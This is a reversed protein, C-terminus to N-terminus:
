AATRDHNLDIKRRAFLTKAATQHIPAGTFTPLDSSVWQNGEGNWCVEGSALKMDRLLDRILGRVHRECLVVERDIVKSMAPQEDKCLTLLLRGDPRPTISVDHSPFAKFLEQIAILM